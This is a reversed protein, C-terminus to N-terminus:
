ASLAAMAKEDIDFNAYVHQVDEHDELIELLKLVHEAEKGEVRVTTDPVLQIEAEDM